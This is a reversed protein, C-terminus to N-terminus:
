KGKLRKVVENVSRIDEAHLCEARPDIQRMLGSLVKGPGVEVFIEAGEARLLRMSAEWRVAATGQRKLGDRVAPASRVLEADVNNAVPIEPDAVELRELDRSLREVAPRMLACHFPASVNLSIARAGRAKALEIARGVAGAHGAIVIQAPSNLNATSVVEGQAAERCIEEVDAPELGVLASMAGQGVPVAEQM